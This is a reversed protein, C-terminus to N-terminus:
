TIKFCIGPMMDHSRYMHAKLHYESQGHDCRFFTLVLGKIHDFLWDSAEDMKEKLKNTQILM